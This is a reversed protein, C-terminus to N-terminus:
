VKVNISRKGEFLNPFVEKLGLPRELKSVKIDRGNLGHDSLITALDQSIRAANAAVADPGMVRLDVQEKMAGLTMELAGLSQIDVKFLFQIRGREQEGGNSQEADPDVWVESYSMKGNWDVPIMMHNVPMYVSENILFSRVIESFAERAEPGLDGRLATEAAKTLQEALGDNQSAQEYPTTKMLRMLADDDLQNLGTLLEGYGSLQRFASLLGEESGNEYRTMELMFMGILDRVKGLDHTREVYSGLYPLIQNQLLNLNGQRDGAELGNELQALLEALQGRWSAPLYDSIQRLQRTMNGAIHKTASFDGYRKAFMLIARKASEGSMKQYAQRLLNFLPGSFRSEGQLQNKFFKLLSDEDMKLMELLTAMEQAIGATLGPTTVSGRIWTLAQSLVQPLDPANQLQQFFTQLNSDYRLVDSQMPDNAGQQDTRGDPRVVRSPDVINRIQPDSPNPPLPHTRNNNISEYGPVRNTAGLLDAM